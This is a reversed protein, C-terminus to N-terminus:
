WMSFPDVLRALEDQKAPWIQHIHWGHEYERDDRVTFFGIIRWHGKRLTDDWDAANRTTNYQRGFAAKFQKLGEHLVSTIINHYGDNTVRHLSPILTALRSHPRHGIEVIPPLDNETFCFVHGHFHDRTKLGKGTLAVAFFPSVRYRIGMEIMLDVMEVVEAQTTYHLIESDHKGDNPDNIPNHIVLHQGDEDTAKKRSVRGWFPTGTSLQGYEIISTGGEKFMEGSMQLELKNTVLRARTANWGIPIDKIDRLEIAVIDGNRVPRKANVKELSCLFDGNSFRDWGSVAVIRKNDLEKIRAYVSKIFTYKSEIAM